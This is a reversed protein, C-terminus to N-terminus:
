GRLKYFISRANSVFESGGWELKWTSFVGVRSLIPTFTGEHALGVTTRSLSYTNTTFNEAM